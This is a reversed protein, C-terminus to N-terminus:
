INTDKVKNIGLVLPHRQHSQGVPKNQQHHIANPPWLLVTRDMEHNRRPPTRRHVATAVRANWHFARDRFLTDFRVTPDLKAFIKVVTYYASYNCYTVKSPHKEFLLTRKGQTISKRNSNDTITGRTSPCAQKPTDLKMGFKYGGLYWVNPTIIFFICVVSVYIPLM